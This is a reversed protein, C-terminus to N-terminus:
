MVRRQSFARALGKAAKGPNNSLSTSLRISSAAGCASKKTPVLGTETPKQLIRKARIREM